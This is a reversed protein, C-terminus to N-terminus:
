LSSKYNGRTTPHQNKSKYLTKTEQRLKSGASLLLQVVIDLSSMDKSNQVVQSIQTRDNRQKM